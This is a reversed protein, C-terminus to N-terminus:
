AKEKDEYLRKELEKVKETYSNMLEAERQRLNSLRTNYAKELNDRFEEFRSQWKTSEKAKCLNIEVEKIRKIENDLDSKYRKEMDMLLRQYAQSNSEKKTAHKYNAEISQLQADLSVEQLINTTQTCSDFMEVNNGLYFKM